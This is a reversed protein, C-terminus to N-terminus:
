LLFERNDKKAINRKAWLPRLNSLAWATRFEDSDTTTIKFEALAVIHDIHWKSRNSWTMRPLFQKELHDRLEELTYGVLSQWARGQKGENGALCGRIARSMRGNIAFNPDSQRRSKEYGRMYANKKGRHEEKTDQYYQRRQEKHDASNEIRWAKNLAAKKERNRESWSKCIASNATPNAERWARARAALCKRCETTYKGTKKDFRFGSLVQVITCKTCAKTAVIEGM